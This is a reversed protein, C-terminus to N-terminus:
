RIFNKVYDAGRGVKEYHARHAGIRTFVDEHGTTKGEADCYILAGTMHFLTISNEGTDEAVLTHV